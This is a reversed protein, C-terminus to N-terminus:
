ESTRSWQVINCKWTQCLLKAWSYTNLTGWNLWMVYLWNVPLPGTTEPAESQFDQKSVDAVARSISSSCLGLTCEPTHCAVCILIWCQNRLCLRTIQLRHERVTCHLFSELVTILNFRNELSARTEDESSKFPILCLLLRSQRQFEASCSQSCHVARWFTVVISRGRIGSLMKGGVSQQLYDCLWDCKVCVCLTCDNLHTNDMIQIVESFDIIVFTLLCINWLPFIQIFLSLFKSPFFFSVPM